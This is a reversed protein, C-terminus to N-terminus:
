YQQHALEKAHKQILELPATAGTRNRPTESQKKKHTNKKNKNTRIISNFWNQQTNTILELPARSGNTKHTTEPNTRTSTVSGTTKNFLNHQQDLIIRQQVLKKQKHTHTTNNFWNHTTTPGTTHTTTTASGIMHTHQRLAFQHHTVVHQQIHHVHQVLEAVGYWLYAKM